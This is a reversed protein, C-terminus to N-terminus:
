PAFLASTHHPIPLPDGEGDLQLQLQLKLQRVQIAGRSSSWPRMVSDIRIRTGTSGWSPTQPADYAGGSSDCKPVNQIGRITPKLVSYQLQQLWFM